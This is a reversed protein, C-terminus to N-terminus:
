ITFVQEASDIYPRGRREKSYQAEAKKRIPDKGDPSESARKASLEKSKDWIDGVTGKKKGVKEIFDNQSWANFKGDVSAQPVTFIRNWKKKKEDIYEHIDMMKQIIEKVEGTEPHEYIYIPM